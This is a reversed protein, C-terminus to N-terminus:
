HIELYNIMASLRIINEDMLGLVSNCTRCLLKRVKDTKHNHDVCMSRKQESQHLQCIACRGGQIQFMRNYENLDIGYQRLLDSNRNTVSKNNRLWQNRYKEPNAIRWAKIRPLTAM